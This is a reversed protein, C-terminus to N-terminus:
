VILDMLISCITQFVFSGLLNEVPLLENMMIVTRTHARARMETSEILCYCSCVLHVFIRETLIFIKKRQAYMQM